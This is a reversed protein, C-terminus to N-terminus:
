ANINGGYSECDFREPCPISTSDAWILTETKGCLSCHIPVYFGGRRETKLKAAGSREWDSGEGSLRRLVESDGMQFSM